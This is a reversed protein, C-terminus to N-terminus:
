PMNSKAPDNDIRLVATPVNDIPPDSISCSSLASALEDADSLSSQRDNLPATNFTTEVLKSTSLKKTLWSKLTNM